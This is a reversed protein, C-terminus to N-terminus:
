PTTEEHAHRERPTPTRASIIRIRAAARETFMVVILRHLVSEGMIVLRAEHWSHRPDDIVVALPDAFVTKAEDFGIGHKRQNLLDKHPDWEFTFTVDHCPGVHTTNVIVAITNAATGDQQASSRAM